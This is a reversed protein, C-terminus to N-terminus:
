SKNEVRSTSQYPRLLEEMDPPFLNLIEPCGKVDIMEIKGLGSLFRLQENVEHILHPLTDECYIPVLADSWGLDLTAKTHRKKRSPDLVNKGDELVVFHHRGPLNLSAVTVMQRDATPMYYPLRVCRLGKEAMIKLAEDNGLGHCPKDPFYERELDEYPIDLMMAVCALGCDGDHRM